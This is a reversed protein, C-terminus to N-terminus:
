ILCEVSEIFGGMSYIICYEEHSSIGKKDLDWKNVEDEHGKVLLPGISFLLWHLPTIYCASLLRSNKQEKGKVMYTAM